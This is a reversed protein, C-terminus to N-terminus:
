QLVVSGSSKALMYDMLGGVEEIELELLQHAREHTTFLMVVPFESTGQQDRQKFSLTKRETVAPSPLKMARYGRVLVVMAQDPRVLLTRRHEENRFVVFHVVGEVQRSGETFHLKDLMM